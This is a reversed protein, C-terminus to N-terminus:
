ADNFAAVGEHCRWRGAVPSLRVIGAGGGDGTKYEFIAEISDIGLRRVKRPARRGPPLHFGHAGTHAQEAALRAAITDRGALPTLHWTFALIDRWHSDQHFLAAIRVADRSNLAAEFAVLWDEAFRRAEQAAQFELFSQDFDNMKPESRAAAELPCRRSVLIGANGGTDMAQLMQSAPLPKTMLPMGGALM